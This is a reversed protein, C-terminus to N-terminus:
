KFRQKIKVHHSMLKNFKYGAGVEVMVRGVVFNNYPLNTFLTAKAFLSLPNAPNKVSFDKGFGAALSPAFYFDGAMKRKSVAGDDGVRYVTGDIITRSIGIQPEFSSFWGNQNIRQWQYGTQLFVNANYDEHYYFGLNTTISRHRYITKREGNRKAKAVMKSVLLYDAGVKLGPYKLAGLVSAHVNLGSEKQPFASQAYSNLTALLLFWVLNWYKMKLSSILQVIDPWGVVLDNSV